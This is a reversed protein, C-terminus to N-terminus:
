FTVRLGFQMTRPGGVTNTTQGFESDSLDGSPLAFNVNNFLNFIEARLEVGVAETIRTQKSIAVDFRVQRPGRLANRGLNGFGGGPSALAARNFYATTPDPGSQRLQDLTYGPALNPRGFGLRYLGGSGSGLAAAPLRLSRNFRAASNHSAFNFAWM